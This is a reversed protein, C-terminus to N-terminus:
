IIGLGINADVLPMWQLCTCQLASATVGDPRPRPRPRPDFRTCHLWAPARHFPHTRHTPQPLPPSPSNPFPTETASSTATPAIGRGTAM